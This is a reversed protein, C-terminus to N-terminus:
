DSMQQVLFRKEVSDWYFFRVDGSDYQFYEIGPYQLDIEEPEGKECEYFGQGCATVYHGKEAIKIGYSLRYIKQFKAAQAKDVDVINASDTESNYLCISTTGKMTDALFVFIAMGNGKVSEMIKATDKRGDGNFDEVCVLYRTPSENRWEAKFLSNNPTRWNSQDDANVHSSSSAMLFLLMLSQFVALM